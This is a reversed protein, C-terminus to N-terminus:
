QANLEARVRIIVICWLTNLERVHKAVESALCVLMALFYSCYFTLSFIKDVVAITRHIVAM